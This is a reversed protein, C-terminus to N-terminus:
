ASKSSLFKLTFAFVVGFLIVLAALKYMPVHTINYLGKGKASQKQLLSQKEAEISRMLSEQLESDSLRNDEIISTLNGALIENITTPKETRYVDEKITDQVIVEAPLVIQIDESTLPMNLETQSFTVNCKIYPEPPDGREILFKGRKPFYIGASEILEMDVEGLYRWNGSASWCEQYIISFQAAPDIVLYCYPVTDGAENMQDIELEIQGKDNKELRRTMGPRSADEYVKGFTLGNQYSASTIGMFYIGLSSLHEEGAPGSTLMAQKQDFKLRVSGKDEWSSVERSIGSDGGSADDHNDTMQHAGETDRVIDFRWHGNVYQWNGSFSDVFVGEPDMRTKEVSVFGQGTRISDFHNNVADNLAHITIGDQANAYFVCSIVFSCFLLKCYM